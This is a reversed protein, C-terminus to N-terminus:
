AVDSVLQVGEPHHLREILHGVQDIQGVVDAVVVLHEDVVQLVVLVLEGAARVVCVVEQRQELCHMMEGRVVGGDGLLLTQHSQRSTKRRPLRSSSALLFSSTRSKLWISVVLDDRSRSVSMRTCGLSLKDLYRQYLWVVLWRPINTM